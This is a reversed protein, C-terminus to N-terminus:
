AGIYHAGSCSVYTHIINFAKQLHESENSLNRLGPSGSMIPGGELGLQTTVSATM